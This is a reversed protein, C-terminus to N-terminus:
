TGRGSGGPTAKFPKRCQHGKKFHHSCNKSCTKLSPISQCRPCLKTPRGCHLCSLSLSAAEGCHPCLRYKKSAEGKQNVAVRHDFVFCEGEFSKGSSHKFYNLVGGKLSYVEKFGQKKMEVLAKDCRIGGTCYILTTQKKNLRATKLKEPFHGFEKLSLDVAKKFRGMKIEYDNRVDLVQSTPLLKEWEGPDLLCTKEGGERLPLPPHNGTTIIEKKIKVKFRKFGQVPSLSKKYFFGKTHFLKHIQNLFPKLHGAPASVSANIGEPSLLILGRVQPPASNLVDEKLRALDKGKLPMFRYFSAMEFLPASAQEM